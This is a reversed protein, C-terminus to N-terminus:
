LRKKAISSFRENEDQENRIQCSKSPPLILRKIEFLLYM